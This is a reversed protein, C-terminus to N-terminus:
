ENEDLIFFRIAEEKPVLDLVSNEDFDMDYITNIFTEGNKSRHMYWINRRLGAIIREKIMNKYFEDCTTEIAGEPVPVDLDHYEIFYGAPALYVKAEGKAISEYSYLMSKLEADEKSIGPIAEMILKISRALHQDM